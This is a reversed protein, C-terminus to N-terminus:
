PTGTEAAEDTLWWLEGQPRLGAAPLGAEGSRVRRLIDRKEAGAVLFAVARSSELAPYTLTIRAQPKAGIVSLVWANREALAATGPFLSATHGEPGLGLLMADFLPRAPDLQAAGYYARLTQEYRRAADAPTGDTPIAHVNAAPIPVRRILAEDAMRFNSDPHDPPVFREDGWFLHTTAWPMRGRFEATALLEYLRRPTSGGSLAVAFRGTTAAARDILWLAARHALAEPDAATVTTTRSTLAASGSASARRSDYCM